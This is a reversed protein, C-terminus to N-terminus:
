SMTGALAEALWLDYVWSENSKTKRAITIGEAGGSVKVGTWRNSVPLSALAREVQEGGESAQLKGYRSKAKFEPAPGAVHVVSTGDEIQVHVGRGHRTGEFIMPGEMQHTMRMHGGGTAEYRSGFQIQPRETMRLGLPAFERDVGAYAQDLGGGPMLLRVVLFIAYLVIPIAGFVMLQVNQLVIAPLMILLVLVTMIQGTKMSYGGPAMQARAEARVQEPDIASPDTTMARRLELPELDPGAPRSPAHMVAAVKQEVYHDRSRRYWGGQWVLMALIGVAVTFMLPIGFWYGSKDEPHAQQVVLGVLIGLVVSALLILPAWNRGQMQFSSAEAANRSRSM